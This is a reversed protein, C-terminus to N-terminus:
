REKNARRAADAAYLVVAGACSVNLSNVKGRMPLSICFDASERVLRSVGREESGLVIALPVDFDFRAYDEGDAEMACIWVGHDKLWECTRSLNTVRCLLLHEVAGAAAKKVTANVPCAEHKPFIVGHVGAAECSRLLAGFNGPDSIRDAIVLLPKEGRREALALVESLEAYRVASQLAVVGQHVVEGSLADLRAKPAVCSPVGGERALAVLERISGHREGAQVYLKDVSGARLAERVANRGAVVSQAQETQKM